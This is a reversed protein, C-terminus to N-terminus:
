SKYVTVQYRPEWAPNIKNGPPMTASNHYNQNDRTPPPAVPKQHTSALFSALRGVICFSAEVILIIQCLINVTCPQSVSLKSSCTHYWSIARCLM